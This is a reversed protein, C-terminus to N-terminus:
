GLTHIVDTCQDRLTPMMFGREGLFEGWSQAFIAPSFAGARQVCAASSFDGERELFYRVANVVHDSTVPYARSRGPIRPILIGTAEKPTPQLDGVTMGLVSEAVGGAALGIVPRGAAMVEVPIMGFDELAPFVLARCARYRDALEKDDLRGLFMVNGKASARLSKLLPGGGVVWLPLGLANFAEIVVQGGKYPVLAGAYLFAEGQVWSKSTFTPIWSTDVPPYIVTSARNYFCRVRAAVFRSISVFDRVNQSGAVDWRRLGALLPWLLPTATGFYAEAQDWAYRMPTFTYCFHPTNAPVTVNKAAAHSLSIVVDYQDPIRLLAAAIPYLPLLARYYRAVGPFHQLVSTGLVQRDIVDSTTGPAHVLTYIHADPFMALFAQLCREGGRMGTLWDHVLAVKM